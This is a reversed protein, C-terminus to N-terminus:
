KNMKCKMCFQNKGSNSKSCIKCKWEKVIENSEKKKNENRITKSARNYVFKVQDMENEDRIQSFTGKSNDSSIQCRYCKNIYYNGCNLCKKTYQDYDKKRKNGSKSRNSRLGNKKGNEDKFSKMQSNKEEEIKAFIGMDILKCKVCEFTSPNNINDCNTCIWDGERKYPYKRFTEINMEKKFFYEKKDKSFKALNRPNRLIQPRKEVINQTVEELAEKEKERELEEVFNFKKNGKTEDQKIENIKDILEMDYSKYVDKLTPHLTEKKLKINTYTVSNIQDVLSCHHLYKNIQEQTFEINKPEKIKDKDSYMYFLLVPYFNNFLCWEIVERYSSMIRTENENCCHWELKEYLESAEINVNMFFSVHKNSNTDVVILGQLIYSQLDFDNYVHFLDTNKFYQPITIFIRCIDEFKPPEQWLLSVNFYKHSQLMILNNKYNKKNVLRCDCVFTENEDNQFTEDHVIKELEFLKNIFLDNNEYLKVLIANTDIAYYYTDLPYKYLTGKKKCLSCYIQSAIDVYSLNHALCNKNDCKIYQQGIINDEGSFFVHLANYFINLIDSANGSQNPNFFKGNFQYKLEHKIYSSDLIRRERATKKFYIPSTLKRMQEFISQLEYILRYSDQMPPEETEFFKMIEKKYFFYNIIVNIFSNQENLNSKFPVITLKDPEDEDPETLLTEITQEQQNKSEESIIM